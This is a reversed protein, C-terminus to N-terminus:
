SSATRVSFIVAFKALTIISKRFHFNPHSPPANAIMRWCLTRASSKVNNNQVLTKSLNLIAHMECVTHSPACTQAATTRRQRIWALM